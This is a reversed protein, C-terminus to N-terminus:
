PHPSQIKFVFLVREHGEVGELTLCLIRLIQVDSYCIFMKGNLEVWLLEVLSLFCLNGIQLNHPKIARPMSQGGAIYMAHLM